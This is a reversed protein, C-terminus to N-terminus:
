VKRETLRISEERNPSRSLIPLKRKTGLVHPLVPRQFPYALFGKVWSTFPSLEGSVNLSFDRLVILFSLGLGLLSGRVPDRILRRRM